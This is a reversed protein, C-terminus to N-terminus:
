KAVAAVAAVDGPPETAKTLDVVKISPADTRKFSMIQKQLDDMESIDFCAVGGKGDEIVITATLVETVQPETSSDDVIFCVKPTKKTFDTAM